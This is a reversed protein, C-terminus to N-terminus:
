QRLLFTHVASALAVKITKLFSKDIILSNRYKLTIKRVVKSKKKFCKMTKIM